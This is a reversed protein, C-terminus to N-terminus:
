RVIGQFDIRIERPFLTMAMMFSTLEDDFAEVVELLHFHPVFVFILFRISQISVQSPKVSTPGDRKDVAGSAFIEKGVIFSKCFIFTMIQHPLIVCSTSTAM